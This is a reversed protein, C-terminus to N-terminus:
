FKNCMPTIRWICITKLIISSITGIIKPPPCCIKWKEQDALRYLLVPTDVSEDFFKWAPFMFKFLNLNKNEIKKANFFSFALILAFYGLIFLLM